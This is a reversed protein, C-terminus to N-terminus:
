KYHFFKFDGKLGALMKRETTRRRAQENARKSKSAHMLAPQLLLLLKNSSFTHQNVRSPGSSVFIIILFSGRTSICSALHICARM